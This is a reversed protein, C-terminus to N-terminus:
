IVGLICLVLIVICGAIVWNLDRNFIREAQSESFEPTFHDNLSKERAGSVTAATCPSKRKASM